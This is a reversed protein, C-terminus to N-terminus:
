IRDKVEQHFLNLQSLVSEKVEIEKKKAELFESSNPSAEKRKQESSLIAEPSRLIVMPIGPEFEVTKGLLKAAEEKGFALTAAAGLLIIGKIGEKQVTEKVHVRCNEVRRKWDLESSRDQSFLCAPYEQYYFERMSFGFEKQIMRDFLNEAEPTRFIRQPSTKAYSPKNPQFEGTYHLVLVKKRGRVIFHRVASLREPCLKCSFNRDQEKPPIRVQVGRTQTPVGSETSTYGFNWNEKWVLEMTQPDPEGRKRFIPFDEKKILFRLDQLISKLEQLLTPQSTM